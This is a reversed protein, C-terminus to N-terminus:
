KANEIPTSYKFRNHTWLWIAPDDKINQELRRAYQETIYGPECAKPNDTILEFHHMYHGREPRTIYAYFVPYDFKKSLVEVGDLFPTEQNFFVTSFNRSSPKQDSLMGYLTDNGLQRQKILDRLIQKKEVPTCGRRERIKCMLNDFYKNKLQRYVVNMRIDYQNPFDASWEWNGMHGLMVFSGHKEKTLRLVEEENTYQVRQSIDEVSAKYGYIIEVIIDSFRHYFEKEIAAIRKKTYDPFAKCLNSHM